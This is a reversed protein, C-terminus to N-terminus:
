TTVDHSDSNFVFDIIIMLPVYNGRGITVGMKVPPVAPVMKSNMIRFFHATTLKNFGLKNPFLM